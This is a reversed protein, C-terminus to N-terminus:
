FSFRMGANGILGSLDIDEGGNRSLEQYRYTLEGFLSIVPWPSWNIGGGIYTGFSSHVSAQDTEAYVFSIGALAYPDLDNGPWVHARVGLDIPMLQAHDHPGLRSEELVSIRGDLRLHESFLPVGLAVGYGYTSEVQKADWYSVFGSLDFALTPSVWSVMVGILVLLTPVNGPELQM